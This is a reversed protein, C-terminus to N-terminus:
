EIEMYSQDVLKEKESLSYEENIFKKFIPAVWIQCGDPPEEGFDLYDTYDSSHINMGSYCVVLTFYFKIVYFYEELFDIESKFKVNLKSYGNKHIHSNCINNTEELKKLEKSWLKLSQNNKIIKKIDFGWNQNEESLNKRIEKKVKDDVLERLANGGQKFLIIEETIPGRIFYLYLKVNEILDRLLFYSVIDNNKNMINILFPISIALNRNSILETFNILNVEREKIIRDDITDSNNYLGELMSVYRIIKLSKDNLSIESFKIINDILYEEKIDIILEGQNDFINIVSFAIDKMMLSNQVRIYNQIEEITKSSKIKELLIGKYLIETSKYKM